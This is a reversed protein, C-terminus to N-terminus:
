GKEPGKKEDQAMAPSLVVTALLMFFIKKM